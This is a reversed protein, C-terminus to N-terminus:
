EMVMGLGMVVGHQGTVMGHGDWTGHDAWTSEHGKWSWGTVQSRGMNVWSGRVDM